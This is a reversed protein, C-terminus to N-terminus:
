PATERNAALLMAMAKRIRKILVPLPTKEKRAPVLTKRQDRQISLVEDAQMEQPGLMLRRLGVALKNAPLRRRGNIQVRSYLTRDPERYRQDVM